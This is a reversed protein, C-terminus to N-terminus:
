EERLHLHLENLQEDSVLSPADFLLDVANQTKPFPIVERITKEGMMLMLIRDIGAAVGGHPPAGYDFAQLLHGFRQDIDNDSYGLLRFVKRQLNSKHIRISGGAIEYGNLVMDYHRGFVKEPATDLLPIDENRPATFPHHMSQYCGTEKNWEFLPFNEIFVFSYINPDTLKLRYGMEIRLKGLVTNAMNNNDAIILLLDGISAGLKIAIARIQDITLHRTVVSKVEEITLEDLSVARSDFSITVLGKAGVDRAIDTLENLQHRSYGACGPTCIGKVKGGGDVINKFIAFESQKAIDSVDGIEMKFRLDPKDTGFREMAESYNLRTFPKILKGEPTMVELLSTFLEELLNIVDEEDIFSMEIDLQTFEPFLM